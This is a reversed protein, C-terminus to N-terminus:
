LKQFDAEHLKSAPDFLSPPKDFFKYNPCQLIERKNKVQRSYMIAFSLLINYDNLFDEYQLSGHMNEERYHHRRNTPSRSLFRISV